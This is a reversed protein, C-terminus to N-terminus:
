GVPRGASQLLRLPPNAGRDPDPAPTGELRRLADGLEQVHALRRAFLGQGTWVARPELLGNRFRTGRELVVRPPDPGVHERLRLVFDADSGRLESFEDLKALESQGHLLDVGDALLIKAFELSREPADRFLDLRAGRDLDRLLDHL